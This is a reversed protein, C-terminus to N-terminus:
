LLESLYIEKLNNTFCQERNCCIAMHYNKNLYYTYMAATKDEKWGDARERSTHEKVFVKLPMGEGTDRSIMFTDFLVSLGKGLYKVYAEKMTWYELFCKDQENEDSYKLIETYEEECFFRKAVLLRGHRLREIDVGVPDDSVALVVYDGSHSMNFNIDSKIYPKGQESYEFEIQSPPVNIYPSLCYQLFSGIIIQKGAIKENKLTDVKKRRDSSLSEYLALSQEKSCDCNVNMYYCNLMNKGLDM